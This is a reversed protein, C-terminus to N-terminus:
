GDHGGLTGKTSPVDDFGRERLSEVAPGFAGVGPLVIHSAGELEGATRVVWPRAGLEELASLVSALNAVGSDIVAARSM